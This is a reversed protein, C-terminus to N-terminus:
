FWPEEADLNIPGMCYSGPLPPPPLIPYMHAASAGFDYGDKYYASKVSIRGIRVTFDSFIPWEYVVHLVLIHVIGITNSSFQGM